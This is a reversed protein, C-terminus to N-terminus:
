FDGAVMNKTPAIFNGHIYEFFRIVRCLPMECRSKKGVEPM